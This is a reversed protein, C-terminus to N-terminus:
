ERSGVGLVEVDESEIRYGRLEVSSLPTAGYLQEFTVSSRPIHNRIEQPHVTTVRPHDSEGVIPIFGRMMRARASNPISLPKGESKHAPYNKNPDYISYGRLWFYQDNKHALIDVKQGCKFGGYQTIKDKTAM